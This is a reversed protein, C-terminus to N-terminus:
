QDLALQSNTVTEAVAIQKLWKGTRRKREHRSKAVGDLPATLVRHGRQCM